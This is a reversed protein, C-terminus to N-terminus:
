DPEVPEGADPEDSEGDEQGGGFFVKELFPISFPNKELENQSFLAYGIVGQARLLSVSYGLYRERGDFVPLGMLVREASAVRRIREAFRTLEGPQYGYAMPVIFDVLGRQLWGVWDQGEETRAREAQPMVAASLPRSGIARRVQVVLSEV